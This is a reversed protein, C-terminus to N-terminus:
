LEGRLDDAASLRLYVCTFIRLVKMLWLYVRIFVSLAWPLNAASSRRYSRIMGAFLSGVAM